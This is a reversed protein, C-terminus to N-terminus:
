KGILTENNRIRKFREPAILRRKVAKSSFHIFGASVDPPSMGM